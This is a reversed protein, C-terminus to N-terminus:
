PNPAGDASSDAEGAQWVKQSVVRTKRDDARLPASTTQEKEKEETKSELCSGCGVLQAV